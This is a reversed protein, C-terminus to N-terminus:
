RGHLGKEKQIEKLKEPTVDNGEEDVIKVGEITNKMGGRFAEIYADRLKKQEVQEQITLGKTKSKNALANIREIQEKPLM